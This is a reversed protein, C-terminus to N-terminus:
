PGVLAPRPAKEPCQRLQLRLIVEGMRTRSNDIPIVIEDKSKDSRLGELASLLDLGVHM